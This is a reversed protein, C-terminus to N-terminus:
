KWRGIAFYNVKVPVTASTGRLAQYAPTYATRSGPNYQSTALWYNGTTAFEETKFFCPAEIFEFPYQAYISGSEMDSSAYNGGWATTCALSKEVAGWCIALGDSYKRYTWIGSTGSEVLASQAVGKIVLDWAIDLTHPLEASKGFAVGTGDGLYDVTVEATPITIAKSGSSLNDTASVTIELTNSSGVGVVYLSYETDTLAGSLSTESVGDIIVALTAKSPL